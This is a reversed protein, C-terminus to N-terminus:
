DRRFKRRCGNGHGLAVQVLGAFVLSGSLLAGMDLWVSIVRDVACVIESWRGVGGFSEFTVPGNCLRSSLDISVLSAAEDRRRTGAVVIQHDQVVIIAVVNKGLRHFVSLAGGDDFSICSLDTSVLSAAEDQRRIGAFVIQHDQVVIIAVVNKGLRHFVPLAGGDDFSIGCVIICRQNLAV